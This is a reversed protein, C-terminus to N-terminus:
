QKIEEIYEIVQNLKLSEGISVDIGIRDNDRTGDYPNPNQRSKPFLIEELVKILRDDEITRDEYGIDHLVGVAKLLYRRVTSSEEITNGLFSARGFMKRYQIIENETKKNKM